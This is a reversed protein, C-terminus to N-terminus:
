HLYTVPANLIKMYPPDSTSGQKPVVHLCPENCAYLNHHQTSDIKRLTHTKSTTTTTTTTPVDSYFAHDYSKSQQKDYYPTSSGTYKYTTTGGRLAQHVERDPDKGTSQTYWKRVETESKPRYIYDKKSHYSTLHKTNQHSREHATEKWTRTEDIPTQSRALTAERYAPLHADRWQYENQGPSRWPDRTASASRSRSRPHIHHEITPSSRYNNTTETFQERQQSSSQRLERRIREIKEDITEHKSSDTQNLEDREFGDRRSYRQQPKTSSHSHGLWPSCIECYGPCTKTTCPQLHHIVHQVPQAIEYVQTPQSKEIDDKNVSTEVPKPVFGYRPYIYTTSLVPVAPVVPASQLMYYRSSSQLPNQQTEQLVVPTATTTAPM